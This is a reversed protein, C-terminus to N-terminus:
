RADGPAGAARREQTRGVRSPCGAFAHGRVVTAAEPARRGLAAHGGRSQAADTPGDAGQRPRQAGRRRGRRWSRELGLSVKQGLTDMLGQLETQFIDVLQVPSDIYYYHGDGARAMAEMLDENYDDGVGITTTGVGRAALGRAEATITNPDVVGTNALGDSLLLVRNVGGSVLGVEAQRGGEVWGGHLDTSGRPSIQEIRRILAAKDVPPGGPVITEVDNDFITVSVRDTQLLQTVAFGAAERAFRMKKGESMSGSRDLVVCLNLPARPFHVEPQPPTIRILVDLVLPEDSCVAHRAPILEIRPETLM